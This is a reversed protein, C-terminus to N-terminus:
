TPDHNQYEGSEADSRGLRESKSEQLNYIAKSDGSINLFLMEKLIM